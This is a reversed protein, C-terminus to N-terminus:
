GTPVLRKTLSHLVQCAYLSSYESLSTSTHSEGDSHLGLCTVPQVASDWRHPRQVNTTAIGWRDAAASARQVVAESHM